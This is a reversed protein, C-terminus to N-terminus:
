LVTRRLVLTILPVGLHMLRLLAALREEPHHRTDADIRNGSHHKGNQCLDRCGLARLSKFGHVAFPSFRPFFLCKCALIM